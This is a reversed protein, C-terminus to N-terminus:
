LILSPLDEAEFLGTNIHCLFALKLFLVSGTIFLCSLGWLAAGWGVRATLADPQTSPGPATSDQPRASCFRDGRVPCRHLPLPPRVKVPQVPAQEEGTAEASLGPLM